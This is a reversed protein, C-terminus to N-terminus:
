SPKASRSAFRRVLLVVVYILWLIVLVDFTISVATARSAAGILLIPVLLLLPRRWAKKM